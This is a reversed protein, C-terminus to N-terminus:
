TPLTFYFKAGEGPSAEAWVRGGHRSVIRQVIALGIGTGEFEEQNHLRQFVAFLKYAYKMDFGDGNDKVYYVIENNKQVSGIEVTAMEKKSSYKIANSILNIWVQSLLTRDAKASLLANQIITVKNPFSAKIDEMLTKVLQEMNIEVKRVEQRGLRSFELLDDILEGMKHANRQVIELFRVGEENLVAACEEQLLKSYGSISRLPARLDHSVSYSFSELEKNTIELQRLNEQLSANLIAIKDDALKQKTIDRANVFWKKTKSTVHWQLCRKEGSKTVFATEFTFQGEPRTVLEKILLQDGEDLFQLIPKSKIEAEEYGLTLTFAQNTEEFVLSELDLIGIIDASNNILLASKELSANKEILEKKQLQNQLLISVKARTIEPDLPKLLYDIAGEEYGKLMSIHEKKAASAFIIPINQTKKNSKLLQAVEFGDMGAMQVDLLLLDIDNTLAIRLAENGNSAKLFLRGEKELLSELAIINEPVDDVILITVSKM